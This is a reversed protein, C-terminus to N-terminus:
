PCGGHPTSRMALDYPLDYVTHRDFGLVSFRASISSMGFTEGKGLRCEGFAFRIAARREEEAELSFPSFTPWQEFPIPEAGTFREGPHVVVEVPSFPGGGREKLQWGDLLRQVTIPLPGDNRITFSAFFDEGERHDLLILEDEAPFTDITRAGSADVGRMSGQALPEYQSIFAWGGAAALLVLLFALTSVRASITRPQHEARRTAVAETAAVLGLM